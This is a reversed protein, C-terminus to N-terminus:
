DRKRILLWGLFGWGLWILASKRSSTCGCSGQEECDDIVGDCDNDWGDNCIEDAGPNVLGDFDNCDKGCSQAGYGDQDMDPCLCMGNNCIYGEQCKKGCVGCNDADSDLNAECGDRADKNCDKYSSYCSIIECVGQSCRSDTGEFSCTQGCGGCHERSELLYVECGDQVKRNCDGFDTECSAVICVGDQCDPRAHELDCVHGCAGCNNLDDSVPFECGDELKENCNDWGPECQGLTCEGQQCAATANSFVCQNGCQGCHTPDEL